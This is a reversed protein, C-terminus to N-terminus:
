ASVRSAFMLQEKGGGFLVQHVLLTIMSKLLLRVENGVLAGGTGSCGLGSGVGEDKVEWGGLIESDSFVCGYVLM